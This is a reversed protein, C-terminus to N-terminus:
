QNFILNAIYHYYKSSQYVMMYKFILIYRRFFNSVPFYKTKAFKSLQLTTSAERVLVDLFLLAELFKSNQRRFRKLLGKEVFCVLSLLTKFFEFISGNYVNMVSFSGNWFKIQGNRTKLLKKYWSEEFEFNKQFSVM